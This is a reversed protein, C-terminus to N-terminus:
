ARSEADRQAGRRAARRAVLGCTGLSWSAMLVLFLWGQWDPSLM